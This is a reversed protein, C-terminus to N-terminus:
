QEGDHIKGGRSQQQQQQQQSKKKTKKNLPGGKNPRAKRFAEVDADNLESTLFV